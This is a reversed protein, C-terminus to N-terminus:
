KQFEPEVQSRNQELNWDLINESISISLCDLGDDGPCSYYGHYNHTGCVPDDTVVIIPSIAALHRLIKLSFLLIGAMGKSGEYNMGVRDRLWNTERTMFAIFDEQNEISIKTAASNLLIRLVTSDPAVNVTVQKQEENLGFSLGDIRFDSVYMGFDFTDIKATQLYSRCAGGFLEVFDVPANRELLIASFREITKEKLHETFDIINISDM